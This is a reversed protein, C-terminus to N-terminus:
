RIWSVSARDEADRQVANSLFPQLQLQGAQSVSIVGWHGGLRRRRAFGALDEYLLTLFEVSYLSLGLYEMFLVAISERFEHSDSSLPVARMGVAAVRHAVTLLVEEVRENFWSSLEQKDPLRPVPEFVSFAGDMEQEVLRAEQYSKFRMIVDPHAAYRTLERSEPQARVPLQKWPLAGGGPRLPSVKLLAIKHFAKTLKESSPRSWLGVMKEPGPSGHDPAAYHSFIIGPSTEPVEFETEGYLM